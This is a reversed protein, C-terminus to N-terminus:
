RRLVIKATSVTGIVAVYVLFLPVRITNGVVISVAAIILAGVGTSVTHVVVFRVCVM